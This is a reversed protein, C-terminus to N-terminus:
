NVNAWATGNCIREVASRSVGYERALDACSVGDDNHRARITKVQDVRFITSPPLNGNTFVTATGNRIADATNDVHDGWYLNESRNDTKVDNRHCVNPKGDPAPGNFAECVLRHILFYQNHGNRTTSVRLYGGINSGRVPRLLGDGHLSRTSFVRGDRTLFLGDVNPAPVLDTLSAADVPLTDLDWALNLPSCNTIDGDLFVVDGPGMGTYALAVLKAISAKVRQGNKTVTSVPRGNDLRVSLQIYQGDVTEKAITGTSTAVYGPLTPIPAYTPIM